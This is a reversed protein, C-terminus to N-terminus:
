SRRRRLLGLGGLGLLTMTMPEPVAESIVADWGVFTAVGNGLNADADITLEIVQGPVAPIFISGTDITATGPASITAVPLGDVSLTQVRAAEWLQMINVDVNVGLSSGENFAPVTFQVRTPGHGVIRQSVPWGAWGLNWFIGYQPAGPNEVGDDWGPQGSAPVGGTPVLLNGAANVFSFQGSPNYEPADYVGGDYSAEMADGASFSWGAASALGACLCTILFVSFVHKM